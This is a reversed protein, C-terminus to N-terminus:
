KKARKKSRAIEAMVADSKGASGLVHLKRRVIDRMADRGAAAFDRMELDRRHETFHKRICATFALTLDTNINVKSIGMKAAKSIMEEPVGQAGPLDGGFDNCLRVYEQPVSSAGHLVLPVGPVRKKIEALRDFDLHPEGKFKYAGHATGIAIALSDCGTRDVFMKAQEPDTYSAEKLTVNLGSEEGGVKGLEAEVVVGRPHAYDVIERTIRINEELPRASGDFMVSTYGTDVCDKISALDLGHDLNLAVPLDHVALAAEILKLVYPMSLYRRCVPCAQLIVPSKEEVAVDTIAQVAELSSMNFAGIAFGQEYAVKFMERTTVLPM